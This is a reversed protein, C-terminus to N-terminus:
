CWALTPTASQCLLEASKIGLLVACRRIRQGLPTPSSRQGDTSRIKFHAKIRKTNIISSVSNNPSREPLVAPWPCRTEVALCTSCREVRSSTISRVTLRQNFTNAEYDEFPRDFVPMRGCRPGGWIDVHPGRSFNGRGLFEGV